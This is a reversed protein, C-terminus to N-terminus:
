ALKADLFVLITSPNHLSLQLSILAIENKEFEIEVDDKYVVELFGFGLKKQVELGYHIIQETKDKLPFYEAKIESM